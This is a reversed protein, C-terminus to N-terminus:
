NGVRARLKECKSNEERRVISKSLNESATRKERVYVFMALYTNKQILQSVNLRSMMMMM